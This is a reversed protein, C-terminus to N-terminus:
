FMVLTVLPLLFLLRLVELSAENLSNILSSDPSAMSSQSMFLEWATVGSVSVPSNCQSLLAARALM